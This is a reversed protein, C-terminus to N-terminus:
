AAKQQLLPQVGLARCVALTLTSRNLTYFHFAEVGEALLRECLSVALSAAVQGRTEPDEDLGAFRESLWAPIGAGCRRSFAELKGFHFIPLIGPVLPKDIGAARARDRFRLFTEAEFFYQTIARAAGADLKRKLNEIDAAASPSDPHVEPYAGVSIDFGAVATLGAVLEAADRYGEPHPRFPTGPEPMDGRLAILRRLGQAWWGAAIDDIAARAAGIGTLHGAIPLDGRALLRTLLRTSKGRAAGGAGYTVSVFSPALPVLRDLTEEVQHDGAADAPPFVELSIQPVRTM